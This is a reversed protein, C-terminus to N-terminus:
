KAMKKRDPSLGVDIILDEIEQKMKTKDGGKFAYFMELHEVPTLYDFLIDHQPCVGLISSLKEKEEFMDINFATAKGKTAEILGSLM